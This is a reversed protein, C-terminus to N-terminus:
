NYRSTNRFMKTLFKSILITDNALVVHRYNNLFGVPYSNTGSQSTIKSCRLGCKSFFFVLLIKYREKSYKYEKDGAEANKKLASNQSHKKCIKLPCNQPRM